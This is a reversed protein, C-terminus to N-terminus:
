RQQQRIFGGSSEELPDGIAWLIRIKRAATGPVPHMGMQYGDPGGRWVRSADSLPRWRQVLQPGSAQRFGGNGNSGGAGGTAQQGAGTAAHRQQQSKCTSSNTSQQQQQMQQQQMQQQNPANSSNSAANSSSFTRELSTLRNCPILQTM